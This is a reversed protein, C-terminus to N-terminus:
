PARDDNATPPGDGEEREVIWKVQEVWKIEVVWRVQEVWM